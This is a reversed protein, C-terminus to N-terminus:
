TTVEPEFEALTELAAMLDRQEDKYQAQREPDDNCGPIIYEDLEQGWLDAADIVVKLAERQKQNM